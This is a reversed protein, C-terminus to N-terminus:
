GNYIMKYLSRHDKLGSYVFSAITIHPDRKEVICIFESGKNGNGFILMEYYDMDYHNDIEDIFYEVSLKM